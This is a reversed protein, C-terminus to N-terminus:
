KKDADAYATYKDSKGYCKDAPYKARNKALKDEVASALDIGCLDALRITYRHSRAASNPAHMAGTLKTRTCRGTDTCTGGCPIPMAQCARM